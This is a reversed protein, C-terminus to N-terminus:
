KKLQDYATGGKVLKQIVRVDNVIDDMLLGPRWTAFRGLSYINFQRTAWVIFSRRIDEDIPLIKAYRTQRDEINVLPSNAPDLINAIGLLGVAHAVCSELPEDNPPMESIVKDGTISVRGPLFRPDPVYLSAYADLDQIDFSVVRGPHSRFLPKDNWGLISMLMPMPITSITPAGLSAVGLNFETGFTFKSPDITRYMQKILNVPAIYREVVEGNGSISSRVSMTGNMKMSYSLADAVPNYWHQSAKLVRVKKFPINLVDGVVSSRFRLVAAHNNPLTAHAEVITGLDNRLMAGALLGAMGAGIINMM